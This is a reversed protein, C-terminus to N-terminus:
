NVNRGVTYSLKLLFHSMYGVLLNEIKNLKEDYQEIDIDKDICMCKNGKRCKKLEYEKLSSSKKSGVM